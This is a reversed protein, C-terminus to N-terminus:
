RASGADDEHSDEDTMFERTVEDWRSSAEDARQDDIAQLLSATTIQHPRMQDVTRRKSTGAGLNVV